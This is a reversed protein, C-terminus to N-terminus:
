IASHIDVGPVMRPVKQETSIHRDDVAAEGVTLDHLRHPAHSALM